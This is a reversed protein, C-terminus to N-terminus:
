RTTELLSSSDPALNHRVEHVLLVNHHKQGLYVNLFQM